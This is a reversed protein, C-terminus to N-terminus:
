PDGTFISSGIAGPMLKVKVSRMRQAETLQDKYKLIIGPEKKGVNKDSPGVRVETLL